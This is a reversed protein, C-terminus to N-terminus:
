ASNVDEHILDLLPVPILNLLHNMRRVKTSLYLANDVTVTPELPV